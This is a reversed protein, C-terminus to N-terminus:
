RLLSRAQRLRLTEHPAPVGSIASRQSTADVRRLRVFVSRGLVPLAPFNNPTAETAFMAILEASAARSRLDAEQGSALPFVDVVFLSDSVTSAGIPPRRSPVRLREGVPRLLDVHDCDIM